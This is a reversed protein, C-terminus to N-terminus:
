PNQFVAHTRLASAGPRVIVLDLAAPAATFYDSKAFTLVANGERLTFRPPANAVVQKTEAFADIGHGDGLDNGHVLIEVADGVFRASAAPGTRPLAARAAIFASASDADIKTEARVPVDLALRAKGPICAEQCVLWKAEVTMRATSGAKADAPVDITVPLLVDGAYGFNVIDGLDFRQPVPWAIDDARFGPPLTWALRTPLGSDGPNIWYTHWHPDHRLRVGLQAPRGPVLASQESLLTVEIHEDRARAASPDQAAATSSLAAFAIAPVTRM